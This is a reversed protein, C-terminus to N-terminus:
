EAPTETTAPAAEAEAPVAEADAAEAAAEAPTSDEPAAEAKPAPAGGGMQEVIQGLVVALSTIPALMTGLVKAYLEDKTKLTALEALEEMTLIKGDMFGAKINFKDNMKKAQESIIRIPAIEDVDSTALSTTGFLIPDLEQFGVKEFAFRTLTNKIVTYDVDNARLDARLKTDELVSIGKYDVFVGSRANKIRDALALVAAQKESLVKANPM